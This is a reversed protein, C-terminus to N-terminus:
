RFNQMKNKNKCSKKKLRNYEAYAEEKEYKRKNLFIVSFPYLIQHYLFFLYDVILSTYFSM